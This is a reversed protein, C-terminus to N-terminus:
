TKLMLFIRISRGSLPIIHLIKVLYRVVLLIVYTSCMITVIFPKVSALRIIEEGKAESSEALPMQWYLLLLSRSGGFDFTGKGPSTLLDLIVLHKIFCMFISCIVLPLIQVTM